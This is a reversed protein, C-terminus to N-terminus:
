KVDKSTQIKGAHEVKKGSNVVKKGLTKEVKKGLMREVKKGLM